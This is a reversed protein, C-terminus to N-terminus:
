CGYKLIEAFHDWDMNKIWAVNALKLTQEKNLTGFLQAREWDFLLHDNEIQAFLWCNGGHTGKRKLFNRQEPTYHDCRVITTPRKPWEKIRKLEMWGHKGGCIFSVDAIGAATTDEHRTSEDWRGRLLNKRMKRWLGSERSAM